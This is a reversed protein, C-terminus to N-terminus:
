QKPALVKETKPCLSFSTEDGDFIRSPDNLIDFAKARDPRNKICKKIYEETVAAREKSIEEAERLSLSPHRKLFGM